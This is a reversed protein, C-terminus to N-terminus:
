AHFRGDERFRYSNAEIAQDVADDRTLYEYEQQLQRYLWRALDRLGEAIANEADATLEGGRRDVDVAMSYEHYYRGRHRCRARIQYFNARQISALQDVIRHLMQDTPAHNRIAQCAKRRYCYGGEFCAGDGQSSFGQFYIRPEQRTGGGVLRVTTTELTVGILECITQFDEFVFDYWSYDMAGERYWSRAKDKAADSLEAFPYLTIEIREAM